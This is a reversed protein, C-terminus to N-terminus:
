EDFEDGLGMEALFFYVPKASEIMIPISSFYVGPMGQKTLHRGDVLAACIAMDDVSVGHRNSAHIIAWEIRFRAVFWVAPRKGLSHKPHVGIEQISPVNEAPTVHYVVTSHIGKLMIQVM